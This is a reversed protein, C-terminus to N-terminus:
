DLYNNQYNSLMNILYILYIDKNTPYYEDSIKFILKSLKNCISDKVIKKQYVLDKTM